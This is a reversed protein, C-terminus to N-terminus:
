LNCYNKPAVAEWSISSQIFKLYTYENFDGYIEKCKLQHGDLIEGDVVPIEVIAPDNFIFKFMNGTGYQWNGDLHSSSIDLFIVKPNLLGKIVPDKLGRAVVRVYESYRVGNSSLEQKVAVEFQVLVFVSFIISILKANRNLLNNRAINVYIARGYLITIYISATYFHWTNGGFFIPIPLSSLYLIFIFLVKKLEEGEGSKILNRLYYITNILIIVGSINFIFNFHSDYHKGFPKLFLRLPIEFGRLINELVYNFEFTSRYDAGSMAKKPVFTFYWYALLFLASILIFLLIPKKLNLENTYFYFFATSVCLFIYTTAREQSTLAILLALFAITFYYFIYRYNIKYKCINIIKIFSILYINLFINFIPDVIGSGEYAISIYVPHLLLLSFIFFQELPSSGFVLKALRSGIFASISIIIIGVLKVLYINRFDILNFLIYNTFNFTFPRYWYDGFKIFSKFVETWSNINMVQLYAACFEPSITDLYIIEASFFLIIIVSFFLANNKEDKIM